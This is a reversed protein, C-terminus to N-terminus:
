QLVFVLPVTVAEPYAPFPAARRVTALAEQDLISVGSSTAIAVNRPAGASDIAFRLEVRGELGQRMALQPYRKARELRARIEGLVSGANGQGQTQGEEGGRVAESQGSMTSAAVSSIKKDPGKDAASVIFDKLDLLIMGQRGDRGKGEFFLPRVMWTLLVLVPLAHLFLSLIFAYAFRRRM